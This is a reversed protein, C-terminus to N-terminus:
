FRRPLEPWAEWPWYFNWYPGRLFTGVLTLVVVALVIGLFVLNQRRREPAWWTGVAPRASRDLFPVAALWLVLLGPVLIGGV